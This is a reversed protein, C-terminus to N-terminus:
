DPSADDDDLPHTLMDIALLLAEEADARVEELLEGVALGRLYDALALRRDYHMDMRPEARERSTSASRFCITSSWPRAPQIATASSPSSAATPPTPSSSSM